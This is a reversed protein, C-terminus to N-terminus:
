RRAVELVPDFARSSRRSCADTTSSVGTSTSRYPAGIVGPYILARKAFIRASYGEREGEFLFLGGSLGTGLLAEM